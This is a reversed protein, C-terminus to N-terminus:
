ESSISYNEWAEFFNLNESQKLNKVIGAMFNEMISHPPFIRSIQYISM